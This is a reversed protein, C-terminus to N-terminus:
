WETSITKQGSTIRFKPIYKIMLCADILIILRCNGIIFRQWMIVQFTIRLEQKFFASKGGAVMETIRILYFPMNHTANMYM